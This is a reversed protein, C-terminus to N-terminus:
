SAPQHVARTIDSLTVEALRSELAAQAQGYVEDLARQIGAGVPCALNPHQHVKLVSDPAQAARYVDLLSIQDARRTLQAGAVGRQTTLLGAKRLLGTVTRIVVPNVGVSAAIEASGMPGSSSDLLTLIHVAISYQSNM